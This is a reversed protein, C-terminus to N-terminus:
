VPFYYEEASTTEQLYYMSKQVSSNQHKLYSIHKYQIKSLMVMKLM